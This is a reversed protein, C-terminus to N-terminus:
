HSVRGDIPHASEARRIRQELPRGPRGAREWDERKWASDIAKGLYPGAAAMLKAASNLATIATEPDADDAMVAARQAWGKIMTYSDFAEREYRETPLCGADAARIALEEAPTVAAEVAFDGPKCFRCGKFTKFREAHVSCRAM